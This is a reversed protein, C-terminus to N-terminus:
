TPWPSASLILALGVISVLGYEVVLRTTLTQDLMAQVLGATVYFFLLLFAGGLLGPVIWANVALTLEALCLGTIGALLWIRAPRGGSVRYLSVALLMGVVGIELATVLIRDRAGYLVVFLAFAVLYVALAFALPIWRHEQPQELERDQAYLLGGVLAAGVLALAKNWPADLRGAALAMALAAFSPGIWYGAFRRDGSAVFRPHLRVHAEAGVGVAVATTLALLPLQAGALPTVLLGVLAVLATGAGSLLRHRTM